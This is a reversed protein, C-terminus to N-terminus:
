YKFVCNPARFRRKEVGYFPFFVFKDKKQCIFTPTFAQRIGRFQSKWFFDSKGFFTMKELILAFFDHSM